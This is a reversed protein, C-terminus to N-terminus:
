CLDVVVRLDELIKDPPSAAPGTCFSSWICVCNSPKKKARLLEEKWISNTKSYTQIDAANSSEKIRVKKKKKLRSPRELCPLLWDEDSHSTFKYFYLVFLVPWATALKYGRDIVLFEGFFTFVMQTQFKAHYYELMLWNPWFVMELACGRWCHLPFDPTMQILWDKVYMNEEWVPSSVHLCPSM